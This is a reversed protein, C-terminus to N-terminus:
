IGVPCYDYIYIDMTAMSLVYSKSAWQSSTYVASCAKKTAWDCMYVRVCACLCVCVSPWGTISSQIARNSQQWDAELKVYMGTEIVWTSCLYVIDSAM